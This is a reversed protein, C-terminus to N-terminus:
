AVGLVFQGTDTKALSSFVIASFNNPFNKALKPVEGLKQQATQAHADAWIHLLTKLDFHRKARACVGLM